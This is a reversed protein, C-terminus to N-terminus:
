KRSIKWTKEDRKGGKEGKLEDKEIIIKIKNVFDVTKDRTQEALKKEFLEHVDYSARERLEKTNGITEIDERGLSSAIVKFDEKDLAKQLHYNNYILFCLSASHNKSSYGERSILALAAHYIAYYYINIIWDYFVEEGFIEKIEGDHKEFIWNAFNLNHNTKKLYLASEDESKRLIKKKVYSNLWYECEKKNEIWIKWDPKKM